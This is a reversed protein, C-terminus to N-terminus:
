WDAYFELFIPKEQKQAENFATLPKPTTSFESNSKFINLQGQLFIILALIITLTLILKKQKQIV